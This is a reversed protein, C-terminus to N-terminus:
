MHPIFIAAHPLDVNTEEGAHYSACHVNLDNGVHRGPTKEGREEAKHGPSAGPLSGTPYSGFM